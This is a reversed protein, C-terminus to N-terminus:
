NRNNGQERTGKVSKALLRVKKLFLDYSSNGPYDFADPNMGTGLGYEIGEEKWHYELKGDGDALIRFKRRTM